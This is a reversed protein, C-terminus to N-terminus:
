LNIGCEDNIEVIVEDILPNLSQMLHCDDFANCFECVELDCHLRRIATVFQEGLELAEKLDEKIPCTAERKWNM